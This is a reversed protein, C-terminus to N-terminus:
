ARSFRRGLVPGNRDNASVQASAPSVHWPKLWLGNAVWTM